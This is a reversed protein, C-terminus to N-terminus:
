AILDEYTRVPGTACAGLIDGIIERCRFKRNFRYCFENLCAQLHKSGRGRYRDAVYLHIQRIVDRVQRKSVVSDMPYSCPCEKLMIDSTLKRLSQLITENGASKQFFSKASDSGGSGTLWVKLLDPNGEADLSMAVSGPIREVAPRKESGKSKRAGFSDNDMQIIGALKLSDDQEHIASRIKGCMTWATPYSVGTAKHIAMVSQGHESESMLYIALFWARLPIRTKHMVTGATLSTQRNCQRCEYLSRTSILYFHRHGCVPCRFGSPWRLTFLHKRCADEDPFMSHFENLTDSALDHAM